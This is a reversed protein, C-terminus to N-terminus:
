QRAAAGINALWFGASRGAGLVSVSLAGGFLVRPEYQRTIKEEWPKAFDVVDWRLEIIDCVQRLDAVHANPSVNALNFFRIVIALDVNHSSAHVHHRIPLALALSHSGIIIEIPRL